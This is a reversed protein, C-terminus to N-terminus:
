QAAAEEADGLMLTAPSGDTGHSSTDAVMHEGDSLFVQEEAAGEPDREQWGRETLHAVVTDITESSDETLEGDETMVMVLRVCETAECYVDDEQDSVYSLGSPAQGLAEVDPPPDAAPPASGRGGDQPQPPASAPATGIANFLGIGASLVLGVVVVGALVFMTKRSRLLTLM